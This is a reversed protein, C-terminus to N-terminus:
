YFSNWALDLVIKSSNNDNKYNIYDNLSDMTKFWMLTKSIDEYTRNCKEYKLIQLYLEPIFMKSTLKIIFKSWFTRGLKKIKKKLEKMELNTRGRIIKIKQINM